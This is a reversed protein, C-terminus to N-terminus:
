FNFSSFFLLTYFLIHLINNYRFWVLAKKCEPIQLRNELEQIEAVSNLPIKPLLENNLEDAITVAGLKEEIILIKAKLIELTAQINILM